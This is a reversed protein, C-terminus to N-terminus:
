SDKFPWNRTMPSVMGLEVSGLCTLGSMIDCWGPKDSGLGPKVGGPSPEVGPLDPMESGLGPNVGGLGTRVGDLCLKVWNLVLSLAGRPKDHTVAIVRRLAM